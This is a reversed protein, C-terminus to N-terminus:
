WRGSARLAFGVRKLPVETERRSVISLPADCHVLM